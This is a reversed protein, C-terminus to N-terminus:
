SFLKSALQKANEAGKKTSGKASKEQSAQGLARGKSAIVRNTIVKIQSKHEDSLLWGFMHLPKLQALELEHSRDHQAKITAFIHEAAPRGRLETAPEEDAGAVVVTCFMSMREKMQLMFKNDTVASLNPGRGQIMCTVFGHISGFISM